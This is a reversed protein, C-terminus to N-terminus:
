YTYKERATALDFEIPRPNNSRKAVIFLKNLDEIGHKLFCNVMRYKEITFYKNMIAVKMDMDGDDGLVGIGEAYVNHSEFLLYGNPTLLNVIKKIYNEFEMYLNGDITHHNSFSLIVDFKNNSKYATFDEDIISINDLKLHKSTDKAIKNLYPNLEIATVTAARKACYCSVFGCNSGIDLVHANELIEDVQYQKFRFNTPKCGTIGIEELGQYFYGQSYKKEKPWTRNQEKLHKRLRYQLLSTGLFFGKIVDSLYFRKNYSLKM